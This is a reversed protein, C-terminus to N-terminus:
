ISTISGNHLVTSSSINDNCVIESLHKTNCNSVLDDLCVLTLLPRFIIIMIIMRSIHLERKMSGCCLRKRMELSEVIAM